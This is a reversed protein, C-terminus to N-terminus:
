SGPAVEWTRHPRRFRAQQGGELRDQRAAASQAVRGRSRLAQEEQQVGDLGHTDRGDDQVAAVQQGHQAGGRHAVAQKRHLHQLGPCELAKARRDRQDGRAAMARQDCAGPECVVVSGLYAGIHLIAVQLHERQRAPLGRLQGDLRLCAHVRAKARAAGAGLRDAAALHTHDDVAASAGQHEGLIVAQAAVRDLLPLPLESSSTVMAGTWWMRGSAVMTRSRSSGILPVTSARTPWFTLEASTTASATHARSCMKRSTARVKLRVGSWASLSIRQLAPSRRGAPASIAVLRPRNGLVTLAGRSHRTTAAPPPWTSSSDPSDRMSSRAPMAPLTVCTMASRPTSIWVAPANIWPTHPLPRTSVPTISLRASFGSVTNFALRRSALM